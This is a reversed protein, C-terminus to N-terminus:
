AASVRVVPVVTHRYSVRHWLKFIVHGLLIHCTKNGQVVAYELM